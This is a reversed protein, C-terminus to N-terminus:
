QQAEEEKETEEAKLKAKWMVDLMKYKCEYFGVLYGAFGVLGFKIYNKM